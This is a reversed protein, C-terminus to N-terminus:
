EVTVSKALNRPKDIDCGKLKAVEYSLLQLPIITLLSQLLENNDDVVIKYDYYDGVKNLKSTTLLIVSAGRAKVEKINSIIKENLTEDTAIAIVPTDKEILSITGHKLEGAPYAESHLYSIEKLKLSGEMALAYDIGRGLFFIDNKQYIELAIDRYVNHKKILNTMQTELKQCDSVFNDFNDDNNIMSLAILSLVALQSSYAKTTAVAIEVGAKTYLVYKAERAISSGVVNVIALTDVDHEKAIRLAALSDATEGSQSIIIVLTRNNYFLKKYRYESAVEVNVPIDGYKEILTKGILGAHYASGCAVIDIKKYKSFDPFISSLEESGNKILNYITNYVVEPEENIEKLMYHEYGNKMAAEMDWEFTDIDKKIITNSDKYVKVSDSTLVAMENNNLLIYRNTFKLIAPVDSAVYNEDNGLAIILPSDKRMVFLKDDIDDVLIAFAYSGRILNRCKDMVKLIDNKENYLKDILACAVETDTESIFSYGSEKLVLKLEEYNEIIGNHVLTIKGVKHPHANIQSPEGHTAWRTHGIGLNSTVSFDIKVELNHIKGKEKIIQIKNNNLFAVGSSDYGRYELAKLGEILVHLAQKNKGVYGVIGCM